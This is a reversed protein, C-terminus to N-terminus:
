PSKRLQLHYVYICIICIYIYIYVCMYIYIVCIYLTIYSIIYIHTILLM